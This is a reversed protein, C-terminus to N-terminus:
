RTADKGLAKRIDLLTNVTVDPREIIRTLMDGFPKPLDNMLVGKPKAEATFVGGGMSKIPKAKLLDFTSFTAKVHEDDKDVIQVGLATPTHSPIETRGEDIIMVTKFGRDQLYRDIAFLHETDRASLVIKTYHGGEHWADVIDDNSLLFAEVAAHQGQAVMKPASMGVGENIFTYM